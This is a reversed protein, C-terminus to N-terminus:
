SHAVAASGQIKFAEFVGLQQEAVILPIRDIMSPLYQGRWYLFWGFVLVIFVSWNRLILGKRLDVSSWVFEVLRCWINILNSSVNQTQTM